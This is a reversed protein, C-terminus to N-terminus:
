RCYWFTLASTLLVRGEKRVLELQTLCQLVERGDPIHNVELLGLTTENLGGLGRLRSRRASSAKTRFASANVVSVSM